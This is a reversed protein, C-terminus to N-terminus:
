LIEAWLYCLYKSPTIVSNDTRPTRGLKYKFAYFSLLSKIEAVWDDVIDDDHLSAKTEVVSPESLLM